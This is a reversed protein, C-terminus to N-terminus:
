KGHMRRRVFTALELASAGSDPSGPEAWAAAVAALLVAAAPAVVLGPFDNEVLSVAEALEEARREAHLRNTRVLLDLFDACDKGLSRELSRRVIERSPSGSTLAAHELALAELSKMFLSRTLKVSAADGCAPGAIAVEFGLRTLLPAAAGAQAGSIAVFTDTGGRDLSDLLAVDILQGDLGEALERKVRPDLTNWDFIMADAIGARAIVGMAAQAHRPPVSSMAGALTLQGIDHEDVQQGVTIAVRPAPDYIFVRAGGADLRGALAAGVSGHGAVLWTGLDPNM